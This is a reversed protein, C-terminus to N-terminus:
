KKVISYWYAITFHEIIGGLCKSATSFTTIVVPVFHTTATKFEKFAGDKVSVKIMEDINKSYNNNLAIYM